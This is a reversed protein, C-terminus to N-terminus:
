RSILLEPYDGVLKKALYRSGLINLHSKNGYLLKGASEMSCIDGDCFYKSVDVITVKSYDLAISRFNQMHQQNQTRYTDSGEECINASGYLRQYKCKQPLFSFNPVDALLYVRKNQDTLKVIAESLGTKINSFDSGGKEIYDWYASIIVVKVNEDNLINSLISEFQSNGVFPSGSQIYYALNKEPVEEALGPFLHESHSDGIIAVNIPGESKSQFCRITGKWTPASNRAQLDSCLYYTNELHKFFPGSGIDGEKLVKIRAAAREPFGFQKYGVFGALGVSGMLGVLVLTILGGKKRARIPTEIIRYTLWALAIAMLVAVIRVELEPSGSELIRAFSLLPWHWLYLPFSILGIWVLIRNSLFVRNIHAHQGALIMFATGVTPLLAWWGPFVVDRNIIFAGAVLLMGGSLSFMNNLPKQCVKQNQRSTAHGLMANQIVQIKGLISNKHLEFYALCSGILLEWFRTLPSYFEYDINEYINNVNLVFSIAGLLVPIILLNFRKKWAAWLVLPWIIYFQEEVGLSWLHALPKTLAATNFYGSEEMLAFNSFFGAGGVVHKSLNRYEDSLLLFWGLVCSTILVLILAPFIRRIRRSYFEIFSFRNKKLSDLIIISILYGSIVFFIDVGIFGGEVLNPFAHSCVVLLVAIARLGDIDARYKPHTLHEPRTGHFMLKCTTAAIM